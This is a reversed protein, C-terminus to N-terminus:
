KGNKFANWAQSTSLFLRGKSNKRKPPSRWYWSMVDVCGTYPHPIHHEKIEAQWGAESLQLAKEMDENNYNKHAARSLYILMEQDITGDPNEISYNSM